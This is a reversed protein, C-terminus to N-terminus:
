SQQLIRAAATSNEEATKMMKVQVEFQRALSIISTMEAVANVNSSELYGSRVQVDLDVPLVRNNDVHMLGDEGKFLQGPEARVLKIRDIQALEAAQGGLPRITVTGDSSVEVKEAPPIVIPIGGNGMVPLGSGTVLQDAANIQLEGGRTYAERGDPGIVAIWGEGDIAVDLDRGTSILTGATTDTAPRESMAYVRSEYGEGLVRMARAQELDSKFGTTTVNALNNAHVRQAVMNERAGTMSVYLLKDM